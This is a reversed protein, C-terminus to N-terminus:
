ETQKRREYEQRIYFKINELTGELDYPLPGFLQLLQQRLDDVQKIPDM